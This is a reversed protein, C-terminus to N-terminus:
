TPVGADHEEMDCDIELVRAGLLDLVMTCLAPSMRDCDDIWTAQAAFLSKAGSVRFTFGQNKNIVDHTVYLSWTDGHKFANLSLGPARGSWQHLSSDAKHYHLKVGFVEIDDM